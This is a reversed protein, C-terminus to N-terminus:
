APKAEFQLISSHTWYIESGEEFVHIALRPKNFHGEKLSYRREGMGDGQTGSTEGLVSEVVSANFRIFVCSEIGSKWSEGHELYKIREKPHNGAKQIKYALM